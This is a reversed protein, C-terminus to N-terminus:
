AIIIIMIDAAWSVTRKALYLTTTIDNFKYDIKNSNNTKGIMNETQQSTYRSSSSPMNPGMDGYPGPNNPRQMRQGSASPGPNNTRQMRQGSTRPGSYSQQNGAQFRAGTAPRPNYTQAKNSPYTNSQQMSYFLSFFLVCGKILLSDM